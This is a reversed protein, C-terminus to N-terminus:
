IELSRFRKETADMGDTLVGFAWNVKKLIEAAQRSEESNEPFNKPDSRKSLRDFAKRVEDFTAGEAVGLLRRAHAMRDEPTAVQPQTEAPTSAPAPKGLSQELEKWAKDQDIGQIRDWETNIYGRLLNYARRGSSM